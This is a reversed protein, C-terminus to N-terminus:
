STRAAGEGHGDIVLSKQLQAIATLSQQHSTSNGQAGFLRAAEKLDRIASIRDGLKTRAMGRYFYASAEQDNLRIVESFDEVAGMKNGMQFRVLGRQFYAPTCNFDAHIAYSYDEIAGMPNGLEARIVGRNCYALSNCPNILIARNLDAIAGEKNGLEYRVLGRNNYAVDHDANMQIVQTYDLIAGQKDDLEYRTLARNFYAEIDNEALVPNEFRDILGQMVEAATTRLGVAVKPFVVSRTSIPHFGLLAYQRDCVLFNEDTGLVKFRFQQPYKRKLQTLQSLTNQLFSKDAPNATPRQHIYRPLHSHQADNLYGWGIDLKGGRELFARFQHLLASDFFTRDPYPFVIILRSQATELATEILARSNSTQTQGAEAKAQVDFVLEYDLKPLSEQLTQDSVAVLQSGLEELQAEQHDMRDALHRMQNQLASFDLIEPLRSVWGGMNKQQHDLQHTFRHLRHLEQQIPDLQQAVLIDLQSKLQVLDAESATNDLQQEIAAIATKLEELAQLQAPNTQRSQQADYENSRVIATLTMVQQRLIKSTVRLPGVNEDLKVQQLRLQTIEEVLRMWERRPVLDTVFQLLSDVDQKLTATDIPNPMTNFRRSLYDIQGQLIKLTSPKYAKAIENVDSRLSDVNVQLQLVDKQSEQLHEVTVTRNLGATVRDIAAMLRTQEAQLDEVTQKVEGVNHGELIDLRYSLQEHLTNLNARNKQMMTKRLNALDWFTPLGQIRRDLIELQKNLRQDVQVISSATQDQIQQDLRHRNVVNLLMLFSIPAASYALQQTAIAAISGLGSGALLAYETVDLWKENKM